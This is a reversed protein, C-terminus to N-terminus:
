GGVRFDQRKLEGETLTFKFAAGLLQSLFEADSLNTDEADEVATMAYEGAPLGTVVFSGDTAPRAVRIRRTNPL